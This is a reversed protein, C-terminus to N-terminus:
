YGEDFRDWESITDESFLGSDIASRYRLALREEFERLRESNLRPSDLRCRVLQPISELVPLSDHTIHTCDTGDLQLIHLNPLEAIFRVHEDTLHMEFLHLEELASLEPLWSLADPDVGPLGLKLSRLNRLRALHILGPGSISSSHLSLTELPWDEPIKALVSDSVQAAHLMLHRLHMFGCLAAFSEDDVPSELDVSKLNIFRQMTRVTQPSLSTRNPVLRGEHYKRDHSRLGAVAEPHEIQHLMEPTFSGTTSIELMRSHDAWRFHLPGEPNWSRSLIEKPTCKVVNPLADDITRLEELSMSVGDIVLVTLAPHEAFAMLGAPTISCGEVSLGTLTKINALSRLGDDTIATRSIDLRALIPLQAITGAGSDTLGTGSVDLNRLHRLNLLAKLGSDTIRSAAADVRQLTPLRAALRLDGDDFNPGSLTASYWSNDVSVDVTVGRQKLRDVVFQDLILWLAVGAVILIVLSKVLEKWNM